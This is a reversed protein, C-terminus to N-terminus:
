LGAPKSGQDSSEGRSLRKQQLREAFKGLKKPPPPKCEQKVASPNNTTAKNESVIEVESTSTSTVAAALPNSSSSSSSQKLPTLEVNRQPSDTTSDTLSEKQQPIVGRKNVEDITGDDMEDAFKTKLLLNMKQALLPLRLYNALTIAISLSKALHLSTCLDLARFQNEDQCAIQILKITTKDMEAKMQLIESENLLRQSLHHNYLLDNRMNDEEMKITDSGSNLLPIQLKVTSLVPKPNSSPHRLGGKCLVYLSDRDTFGVPWFFDSENKKGSSSFDLIPVWQYDWSPFLGRSVGKSDTCILVGSESFGLWMLTSDPSLPLFGSAVVHKSDTDFLQFHLSPSEQLPLGGHTVIALKSEFGASCLIPGNSCFMAIQRGGLSFLRIYNSSTGVCLWRKGICLTKATENGLSIRWESNAAWSDFPKFFITSPTETKNSEKKESPIAAFVAGRPGLACLSFGFHDKFRIPQQFGIDSFQIHIISHTDLKQSEVSGFL